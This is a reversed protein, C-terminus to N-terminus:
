TSSPSRSPSSRSTASTTWRRTAACTARACSRRATSAVLVGHPRRRHARQQGPQAGARRVRAAGQRGARARLRSRALRQRGGDAHGGAASCSSAGRPDPVRRRARQRDAALRPRPDRGRRRSLIEYRPLKNVFMRGRPRIPRNVSGAIDASSEVCISVHTGRASDLRSLEGSRCGPWRARRRLQEDSTSSCSRGVVSPSSARRVSRGLLM